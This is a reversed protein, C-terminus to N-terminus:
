TLQNREKDEGHANRELLYIFGARGCKECPESVKQEYDRIPFYGAARYDGCCIYCLCIPEKMRGGHKVRKLRGAPGVGRCLFTSQIKGWKIREGEDAGREGRALAYRFKFAFFWRFYNDLLNM